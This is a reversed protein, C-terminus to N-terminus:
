FLFRYYLPRNLNWIVCFYKLIFLIYTITFRILKIKMFSQFISNKILTFIVICFNTCFFLHFMLTFTFCTLHFKIIGFIGRFCTSHFSFVYVIGQLEYTSLLLLKLFILEFILACNILINVYFLM